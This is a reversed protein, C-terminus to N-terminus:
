KEKKKKRNESRTTKGSSKGEKRGGEEEESLTKQYHKNQYLSFDLESEATSSNRIIIMLIIIMIILTKELSCKWLHHFTKININRLFFRPNRKDINFFFFNKKKWKSHPLFGTFNGSAKGERERERGRGKLGERLREKNRKNRM